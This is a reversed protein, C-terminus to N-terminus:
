GGLRVTKDILLRGDRVVVYVRYPEIPTATSNKPDFRIRIDATFASGGGTVVPEGDLGVEDYGGWFGVYEPYPLRFEATLNQWATATDEPLAAYHARIFAAVEAVAFM